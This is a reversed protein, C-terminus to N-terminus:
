LSEYKKFHLNMVDWSSLFPAPLGPMLALIKWFSDDGKIAVNAVENIIAALVTCIQFLAIVKGRSKKTAMEIGYM